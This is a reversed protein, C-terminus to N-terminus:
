LGLISEIDKDTPIYKLKKAVPYFELGVCPNKIDLDNVRIGYFFLAKLSRLCSNVKHNTKGRSLLDKSFDALFTNIQPKTVESAKVDGVREYFMKFYRRNEKYYTKSKKLKLEDLKSNMLDILLMDQRPNRLEEDLM